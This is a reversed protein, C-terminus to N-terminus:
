ADVVPLEAAPPPPAALEELTMEGALDCRMQATVEAPSLGQGLLCYLKTLAAEPTLDAGSIVGVRALASGTGYAEQQVRGRHCQSVNVVVVGRAVAEGLVQLLEPDLSPFNGTGYTELVVAETPASLVRALLRATIGPFVRLAVVQPDHVLSRLGLRGAPAPRVLHRNVKVRAGVTALPPLNGSEFAVFEDNSIKQARNGRLLRDGFYVCVEPLDLAGALVLATLVHDRGDSLVHTLSLQAGTLIIPRDVNELLFSLASATYALTDTGHLVVCADFEPACDVVIRAIRVWDDPRMNASDLLPECRFVSFAPVDPHRLQPMEELFRDLVAGDPVWGQGSLSMGITGGVHILAVRRGGARGGRNVPSM